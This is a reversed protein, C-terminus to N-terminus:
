KLLLDGNKNLRARVHRLEETCEYRRKGVKLITDEMATEIHIEAQEPVELFTEVGSRSGSVGVQIGKGAYIKGGIFSRAVTAKGAAYVNTHNCGKGTVKVDNASFVESNMAYVFSVDSNSFSFTEDGEQLALMQENLIRLDDLSRLGDKHLIIFTRYLQQSLAVWGEDLVEKEREIEKMLTRTRPIFSKYKNNLLLNLLTRLGAQSDAKEHVASTQQLQRIGAIIQTLETSLEVLQEELEPLSRHYNGASVKSNIVNHTINLAHGARVTANIVHGEIIAEGDAEVKMTEDVNGHVHIDGVFKLNGSELNVNGQHVLSPMITVYILKGKNEVHPRGAKETIIKQEEKVFRTGDGTRIVVPIGAKAPVEEGHINIGATGETPPKVYALTEGELITPIYSSERFDARGDDTIKAAMRKPKIEVQYDLKGNIGNVPSKGHAIAFTDTELTECALKIQQPDIGYNIKLEKLKAVVDEATLSNHLQKQEEICPTLVEQPHCDLLTREIVYGPTVLLEASQKDASISIKWSTEVHEGLAEVSWEDRERIRTTETIEEGNCRLILGERPEIQPYEEEGDCSHIKGEKVWAKGKLIREHDAPGSEPVKEADSPLLRAQITVQQKKLGFLGGKSESLIDIKLSKRSKQFAREAKSVAKEFTVDKFELVREM